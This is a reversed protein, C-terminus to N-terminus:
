YWRTCHCFFRCSSAAYFVLGPDNHFCNLENNVLCTTGNIIWTWTTTSKTIQTYRNQRFCHLCSPASYRRDVLSLPTSMTWIFHLWMSIFWVRKLLVALFWKIQSANVSSVHKLCFTLLQTGACGGNIFVPVSRDTCVRVPYWFQSLNIWM